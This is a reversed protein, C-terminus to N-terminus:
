DSETLVTEALKISEKCEGKGALIKSRLIQCKLRAKPTLDEREEISEVIKLANDFQSQYLLKKVQQFNETEM